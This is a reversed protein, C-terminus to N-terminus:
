GPPFDKFMKQVIKEIKKQAKAVKNANFAEAAVGRWVPEDSAPDFFDVILNGTTQNMTDATLVSVSAYYNSRQVFSGRVVLDMNAYAITSVYADAEGEVRRLGRDQLERDIADVIWQQVKPIAAPTGERWAYTRYSGFDTNEDHGVNVDGFVPSAILALCVWFAPRTMRMMQLGERRQRPPVVVCCSITEALIASWYVRVRQRRSVEM